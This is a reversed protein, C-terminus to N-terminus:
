PQSVPVSITRPSPRASDVGPGSIMTVSYTPKTAAQFFAGASMGRSSYAVSPASIVTYAVNKGVNRNMKRPAGYTSHSLLLRRNCAASVPTVAATTPTM